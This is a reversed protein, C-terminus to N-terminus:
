PETRFEVWTGCNVLKTNLIAETSLYLTKKDDDHNTGYDAITMWTMIKMVMM